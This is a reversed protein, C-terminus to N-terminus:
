WTVFQRIFVVALVGILTLAFGMKRSMRGRHAQPLLESLSLFLFFGSFSALMMALAAASPALRLGALAGVFPALADAVLLPIISSHRRGLAHRLLTVTSMGDSFDHMVVALTVLLGLRVDAAFGGGIAIGDLLSHVIMSSARIWGATARHRTNDCPEMPLANTHEHHSHFGLALDLLHFFLTAILTASLVTTLALGVREGQELAEPLLDLFAVGLLVGGSLSLWPHLDKKWYYVACGGITTSIVPLIILPLISISM